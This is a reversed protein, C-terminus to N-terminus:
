KSKIATGIDEFLSTLINAGTLTLHGGDYYAPKGDIEIICIGGECLYEHTYFINESPVQLKDMLAFFSSSRSMYEAINQRKVSIESDRSSEFLTKPIHQKYTPVPAIVYVTVGRDSLMEIFISLQDSNRKNLYFSPSYHVVVHKLNLKSVDEYISEAKTAKSMLPKNSIFFYTSIGKSDLIDVFPKKISDAHSNGLLLVKSENDKSGFLCVTEGLSLIRNIKGCRYSSRDQWADFIKMQSSTYRLSNLSPGIAIFVLTLLVGLIIVQNFKNSCKIPEVFHYLFLSFALTLLLIIIANYVSNFGLVTGGFASYNVLVIVPFHVLYISYSYNGLQILTKELFGKIFWVHDMSFWILFSTIFVILLSAVGPHGYIISLENSHMPYFIFITLLLIILVNPFIVKAVKSKLTVPYWAVCAGFLFEWLRLPMMFFSTKPSVLVVMFCLFISGFLMTLTLLTRKRLIPLLFPAILYFQFEVGLSWLNLLPKFATSDFYSNELWFALNSLGLIDYWARDLRQQADVPVAIFTVFFTTLFITTVLAPLLRRLRRSYFEAVSSKECLIAMLYGSLVFFLDVGLYGNEFGPVKLHYLFVFTVAIGRLVQLDSRYAVM